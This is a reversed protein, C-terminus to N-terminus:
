PDLRPNDRMCTAVNSGAQRCYRGALRGEQRGAKRGEKWHSGLYSPHAVHRAARCAPPRPLTDGSGAGTPAKTNARSIVM